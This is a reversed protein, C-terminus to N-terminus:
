ADPPPEPNGIAVCLPVAHEPSTDSLIQGHYTGPPASEPVEVVVTLQRSWRGPLPERGGDFHVRDGDIQAGGASALGACRLWPAAREDDSLNHVWMPGSCTVGPAGVISVREAGDVARPNGGEDALRRVLAFARDFVEFSLDVWREMDIRARRLEEDLDGDTRGLGATGLQRYLDFLRDGMQRSAEIGWQWPDGQDGEGDREDGPTGPM